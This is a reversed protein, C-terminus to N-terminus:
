TVFLEKKDNDLSKEVDQNTVSIYYIVHSMIHDM